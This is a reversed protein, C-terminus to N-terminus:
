TECSATNSFPKKQLLGSFRRESQRRKYFQASALAGSLQSRNKNHSAVPEAGAGRRNCLWGFLAPPADGRESQNLASGFFGAKRQERIYLLTAYKLVTIICLSSASSAHAVAWLCRKRLGPARAAKLSVNNQGAFSTLFLLTRKNGRRVWACLVRESFGFAGGIPTNHYFNLNVSLINLVTM